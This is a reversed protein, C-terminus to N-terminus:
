TDDRRHRRPPSPTVDTAYGHLLHALKRRARALRSKVTGTAIHLHSAIEDYTYGQMFQRIVLQQSAPLRHIARAMDCATHMDPLCARRQIAQLAARQRRRNSHIANRHLNHMIRYCWGAFNIDRYIHRKEILHLLTDQMLDACEDTNATLRAAFSQLQPLFALLRTYYSDPQM